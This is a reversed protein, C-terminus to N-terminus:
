QNSDVRQSRETSAVSDLAHANRVQRAKDNNAKVAANLDFEQPKEIDIFESERKKDRQREEVCLGSDKRCKSSFKIMVITIITFFILGLVIIVVSVTSDGDDKSMTDNDSNMM